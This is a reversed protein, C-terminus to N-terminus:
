RADPASPTDFIAEDTAYELLEGDILFLVKDAVSHAFGEEHPSLIM